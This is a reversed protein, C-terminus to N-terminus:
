GQWGAKELGTVYKELVGPPLFCSLHERTLTPSISCLKDLAAGAETRRGLYGYAAALVRYCGPQDARLNLSKRAYEIAQEYRGALFHAVAINFHFEAMLPDQPSLRIAKEIMPIADDPRGAPALAAGLAWLALASSPNIEVARELVAVAREHRGTISYAYGLATLARPDEHDLAVAREAERVAEARTRDPDATWQYTLKYMDAFAVICHGACSDPTLEIAKQGWKRAADTDERTYRYLHWLGRHLCDWADLSQPLRHMAHRIESQSLATGLSGAVNATIEDQLEFIDTLERDYRGSWLQRGDDADVLEASVRVRNGAKRVSGSVIYHAGLERGVRRADAVKDKYSFSSNRAIIPYIKLAALSTILDEALGEAFYDQEPDASLNRFPLVAVARRGAFGPVSKAMGPAGDGARGGNGGGHELEIEYIRVPRPVNKLEHEGTDWSSIPLKGDIQDLVAQSVAVGGPPAKAEIRASINVGDGVIREGKVVIDGIHIGIRFHMRRHEPLRANREALTEQIGLACHVADVASAFEALLNDGVMDVVRGGYQKVRGTMLSRYEDLTGVTAAENDAMLRTYGAVDASLIAALRRETGAERNM